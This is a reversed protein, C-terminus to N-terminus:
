RVYVFETSNFLAWCVGALGGSEAAALARTVEAETAPRGLAFHYAARVAGAPDGPAAARARAALAAAQRQVFANNMLSLSQLPTITVGRRPTKVAPDPCDFADLLPDKGSNVNMRYVTRRNFQPDDGDIPQYFTANFKTTTFPRFSPGGAELNLLGSAALMADRVAEAELRRPAFRWVLADDADIEQARPNAASSQRYAASRVILRHLSKVSWGDAVFRAALWDLLEPHTPLSGAAGFDSPTAVLGTGFHFQWVRNAMVRAPLPNRPDALWDAFRRRREGEASDAELGLDAPLGPVASLGGPPVVDGPSRVDGRALVRAPPPQVRVGAYSVPLATKGAELGAELTRARAVAATREARAAADLEALTEELPISAGGSRFSAAVEDASLPRDYIAASAIAGDLFGNGAGEHRLGLLLRAGGAEFVAPPEAPTYPSGYPVGDRYVAISGDVDYVIAMHVLRDPEATEDADVLDQTRRFRGSGPMWRKPQREGFVIADFDRDAIREISIAAGGRQGLDALAVWAELTKAAITRPLVASEFYSKRGRPLWLRGDAIRAGGHLTGSTIASSAPEDFAFRILPSPGAAVGGADKKKAVVRERGVAEIREITSRVEALERRLGAMRAEHAEVEAPTAITREGHKVGDFVARVRYYEEQSIPDFKHAHCRACNLSLGLFTQGVVSLMDEMEEERTAARQTANAQNNGAQDWAGCTLLSAAVIGDSTVPEVADGAIQAKMFRDYPLDDNFSRIVWDRYHWARDRPHDYEFGQSETYRVVDLWHRGWREGYRPSALLRDVLQEYAHPSEDAVFAEVEASDPPLGTLDFSLRRILTRRDAPPSFALGAEALRRGIFADIENGAHENGDVSDRPPVTPSRIPQLSWWQRRRAVVREWSTEAALEAATLPASRPDPAGLEIWRRFAAVIRPAPKPGGKPMLLGDAHELAAIVMSAAPDGPVVAPGSAGGALLGAASDVALDEEHVGNAAHCEYCREVLYPRVVQAFLDEGEGARAAGGCAAVFATV